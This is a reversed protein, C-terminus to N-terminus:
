CSKNLAWVHDTHVNFSISASYQPSAKSILEGHCVVLFPVCNTPLHASICRTCAQKVDTCRSGKHRRALSGSKQKKGWWDTFFLFHPQRKNMWSNGLVHAVGDKYPWSTILSTTATAVAYPWSQKQFFLFILAAKLGFIKVRPDFNPSPIAM